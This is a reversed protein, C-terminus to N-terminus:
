HNHQEIKVVHPEDPNRGDDLVLLECNGFHFKTLVELWRLGYHATYLMKGIDGHTVLLVIGSPHNKRIYELTSTARKLLEPFSEAEPPSLFYTITATKVINPACLSEIQDIPKGTMTGFNREILSDLVTPNQLGLVESVVEATRKARLLPSTYVFDFTIGVKKIGDALEHAQKEGLVTLPMDRHGNLIGNANDENQGHRAIYLTLM